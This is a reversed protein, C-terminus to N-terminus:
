TLYHLFPPFFHEQLAAESATLYSVSAVFINHFVQSYLWSPPSLFVISALFVALRSEPEIDNDQKLVCVCVCVCASM